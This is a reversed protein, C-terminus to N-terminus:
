FTRSAFSRKNFGSRRFANLPLGFALALARSACLASESVSDSASNSGANPAGLGFAFALSSFLLQHFVRTNFFCIDCEINKIVCLQGIIISIISESRIKKGLRRIQLGAAPLVLVHKCWAM